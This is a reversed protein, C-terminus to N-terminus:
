RPTTRTPITWTPTIHHPITWHPNDQTIHPSVLQTLTLKVNLLVCFPPPFCNTFILVGTRGITWKQKREQIVSDTSPLWSSAMLHTSNQGSSLTSTVPLQSWVTLSQSGLIPRDAPDNECGSLTLLLIAINYPILNCTIWFQAARTTDQVFFCSDIVWKIKSSLYCHSGTWERMINLINSAQPISVYSQGMMNSDVEKISQTAGFSIWKDCWCHKGSCITFM